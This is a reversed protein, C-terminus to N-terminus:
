FEIVVNGTLKLDRQHFGDVSQLNGYNPHFHPTTDATTTFSTDFCCVPSWHKDTGAPLSLTRIEIPGTERGAAVLKRTSDTAKVGGKAVVVWGSM